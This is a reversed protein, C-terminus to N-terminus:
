ILLNIVKIVMADERKTICNLTSIKTNSKLQISVKQNSIHLNLRHFHSCKDNDYSMEICEHLLILSSNIPSSFTILEMLFFQWQLRPNKKWGHIFVKKGSKGTFLYKKQNIALIYKFLRLGCFVSSKVKLRHMEDTDFEIFIIKQVYFNSYMYRHCENLICDVFATNKPRKWKMDRTFNFHFGVVFALLVGGIWIKLAIFIRENWRIKNCFIKIVQFSHTHATNFHPNIPNKDDSIFQM